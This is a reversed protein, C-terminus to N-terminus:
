LKLRRNFIASYKFIERYNNEEAISREVEGTVLYGDPAMCHKMKDLILRRHEQSYYFLINSCFVLDFDGYISSTPSCKEKQLLDFISFDVYKKIKRSVSYLGNKKTFYDNIRQLEVKRLSIAHYIGKKANTLEAQNIDTAFIRCSINTDQEKLLEDVLIAISYAEQGSACAASWIRIEKGKDKRKKEILAPLVFQEIYSFTLPNRFFESFHIQLAGLLIEIENQENKLYDLYNGSSKSAAIDFRKRLIKSLFSEDYPSLDIGYTELLFAFIKKFDNKM